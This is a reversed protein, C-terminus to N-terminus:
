GNESLDGLERAAQIKRAIETSGHTTLEDYEAHLRDCPAQSLHHTEPVSGHYRGVGTPRCPSGTLPPRSLTRRGGDVLNVLPAGAVVSTGTRRCGGAATMMVM